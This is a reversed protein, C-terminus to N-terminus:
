GDLISAPKGCDGVPVDQGFLVVWLQEWNTVKKEDKRSRLIECTRESIGDEWRQPATAVLPKPDCMQPSQWHDQMGEPSGCNEWCRPCPFTKVRQHDETVHKRPLHSNITLVASRATRIPSIIPCRSSIRCPKGRSPPASPTSESMSCPRAENAFPAPISAPTSIGHWRGKVQWDAADTTAMARTTETITMKM